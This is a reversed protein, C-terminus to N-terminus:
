ESQMGVNYDGLLQVRIMGAARLNQTIPEEVQELQDALERHNHFLWFVHLIGMGNFFRTPVTPGQCLIIALICLTISAVLGLSVARISLNLRAASQNKQVNVSGSSLVPASSGEPDNDISYKQILSLQQIHGSIGWALPTGILVEVIPFTSGLKWNKHLQWCNFGSCSINFGVGHVQTPMGRPTFTELTDYLSGNLLGLKESEQLNGIWPLFAMNQNIFQMTNNLSVSTNLEPVGHTHITLMTSSDYEEVSFLLPTTLHLVLVVTLYGLILASRKVSAPISFQEYVTALASGLGSWALINDHTATLTEEAQLCRQITIRQVLFILGSLYVTGLGTAVATIISGMSGQLNIPFIISHEAHPHFWVGLLVMHLLILILHCTICLTQQNKIAAPPYVGRENRTPPPCLGDGCYNDEDHEEPHRRAVLMTNAVDPTQLCVQARVLGALRLNNDTPYPVHPLLHELNHHHRFMWIVHLLGTNSIEDKYTPVIFYPIALLFLLVSAGFGVALFSINLNLRCYSDSQQIVTSNAFLTPQVITWPHTPDSGYKLVMSGPTIHGVIWFIAAVLASLSNEINHLELISTSTSASKSSIWSPDLGLEQMLYEEIDSMYDIGETQNDNVPIFMTTSDSTLFDSWMNSGILTEEASFSQLNDYRQWNSHTKYASPQLSSPDLKRSQTNVTGQQYVLSKSCQLFQLQSVTSNPGMPQKLTVPSGKQGHSDVVDNTTYLVISNNVATYIQIINPGTSSFYASSIPLEFSIKWSLEGEVLEVKTNIGPLYGCTINFGIASVTASGNGLNIDQLVDYLSGNFLGITDDLNHIWPLFSVVREMYASILDHDSQNWQPVGLTQAMSPTSLNFTVVSVLAPTTVHIVTILGLYGTISLTGIISAPVSLQLYLNNLASGLGSWSLLNDHTATLTTYRKLSWRNALKQTVFVILALYITAFGTM